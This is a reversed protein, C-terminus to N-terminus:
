AEKKAAQVELDRLMTQGTLIADDKDDTHYTADPQGAIEATYEDWEADRRILVECGHAGTLRKVIRNAM